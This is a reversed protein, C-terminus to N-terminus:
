PQDRRPLQGWRELGSELSEITPRDAERWGRADIAREIDPIREMGRQGSLVIERGRPSRVELVAGSATEYLKRARQPQAAAQPAAAPAVRERELAAGVLALLFAGAPALLQADFMLRRPDHGLLIATAEALIFGYLLVGVLARLADLVRWRSRTHAAPERPSRAVFLLAGVVCLAAEVLIARLVPAPDGSHAVWRAGLALTAGAAAAVLWLATRVDVRRM